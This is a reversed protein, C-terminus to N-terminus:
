RRRPRIRTSQGVTLNTPTRKVIVKPDGPDDFKLYWLSDADSTDFTITDGPEKATQRTKSEIGLWYGSISTKSSNDNILTVSESTDPTITAPAAQPIGDSDVAVSATSATTDSVPITVAIGTGTLTLTGSGSGLQITQPSTDNGPLTGAMQGSPSWSWSLDVGTQNTISVSYSTSTYLYDRPALSADERVEIAGYCLTIQDGQPSTTGGVTTIVGIQDGIPHGNGDFGAFDQYVGITAVDDDVAVFLQSSSPESADYPALQGSTEYSIVNGSGDFAVIAPDSVSTTTDTSRAVVYCRDCDANSVTFTGETLDFTINPNAAM